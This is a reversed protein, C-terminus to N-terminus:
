MSRLGGYILAFFVACCIVNVLSEVTEVANDSLCCCYRAEFTRAHSTVEAVWRLLWPEACVAVHHALLQPVPESMVWVAMDCLLEVPLIGLHDPATLTQVAAPYGALHKVLELM